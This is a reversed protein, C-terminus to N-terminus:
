KKLLKNEEVFKVFADAQTLLFPESATLHLKGNEDLRSMANPIILRPANMIKMNLFSLLVVFHDQAM